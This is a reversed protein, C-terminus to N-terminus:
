TRESEREQGMEIYSLGLPTAFTIVVIVGYWLAGEPSGSLSWAVCPLLVLPLGFVKRRSLLYAGLAVSIVILVTLVIRETSLTLNAMKAHAPGVFPYVVAVVLSILCLVRALVDSIAFMIRVVSRM